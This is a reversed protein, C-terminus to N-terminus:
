EIKFNDALEHLRCLRLAHQLEHVYSCKIHLQSENNHIFLVNEYDYEILYENWIRSVFRKIEFGNKELIETTIPIPEFSVLSRVFHENRIQTPTAITPYDKVMAWDGIMLETVKMNM